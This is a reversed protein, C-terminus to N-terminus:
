NLKYINLTHYYSIIIYHYTSERFKNPSLAKIFLVTLISSAAIRM